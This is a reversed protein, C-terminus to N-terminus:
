GQNGGKLAVGPGLPDVGPEVFQVGSEELAGRIAALTPKNASLEGDQAELRKITPVSVGSRKALEAQDLRVLARAARLQESTRM